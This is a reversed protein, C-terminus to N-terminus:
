GITEEPAGHDSFGGMRLAWQLGITAGKLPQLLGLSLVLTVPVWIALQQWMSLEVSEDLALFGAVVLHGVIFITLYPPLDDARHHHVDLGCNECREVSKLFGKFLRGEGCRPCRGKFGRWLSPALPRELNVQRWNAPASPVSHQDESM